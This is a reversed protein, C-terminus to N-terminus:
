DEIGTWSCTRIDEDKDIIGTFFDSRYGLADDRHRLETFDHRLATWGTWVCDFGLVTLLRFFLLGFSVVAFVFLLLLALCHLDTRPQTLLLFDFLTVFVM